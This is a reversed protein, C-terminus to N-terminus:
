QNFKALLNELATQLQMDYLQRFRNLNPTPQTNADGVLRARMLKVPDGLANSYLTVFNFTISEIITDFLRSTNASSSYRNKYAVGYYVPRVVTYSHMSLMETVASALALRSGINYPIALVTYGDQPTTAYTKQTEAYKPLPLMSYHLSPDTAFTKAARIQGFTFLARKKFFAQESYYGTDTGYYADKAVTGLFVGDTEYMLRYLAEFADTANGDTYSLRTNGEADTTSLNIGFSVLMADVCMSGSNFFLGHLDDKTDGEEGDMERWVDRIMTKLLEVTWKGDLAVQYLDTEISQERLLDENFYTVPTREPASITLDGVLYYLTNHYSTERIFSQNYWPQALSIYNEPNGDNLNYYLGESALAAGYYATAGIVDFADDSGMISNRIKVLHDTQVKGTNVTYSIEVGLRQKTAENRSVIAQDIIATSTEDASFENENPVLIRVKEGIFTLDAPIKSDPESDISGSGNPGGTVTERIQETQSASIVIGVVCGATVIVALGGSVVRLLLKKNRLILVAGAALAALIAVSCLAIGIANPTSVTKTITFDPTVAGPDTEPEGSEDAGDPQSDPSDPEPEPLAGPIFSGNQMAAVTAPILKCITLENNGNKGYVSVGDTAILAATLAPYNQAFAEKTLSVNTGEALKRIATTAATGDIQGNTLSYATGSGTYRVTLSFHNRVSHTGIAYETSGAHAVYCDELLLVSAPKMSQDGEEFDLTDAYLLSGRLRGVKHDMGISICRTMTVNGVARGIFGGAESNAKAIFGAFVCDTFVATGAYGTAGVFGGLAKYGTLTCESLCDKFSVNTGYGIAGIMGGVRGSEVTPATLTMATYVNEITCDAGEATAAIVGVPYSGDGTLTISGSEFRINRVTAGDLSGIFALARNEGTLTLGRIAHGSGEFFGRFKKPAIWETGTMDIDSTLRVIRNRYWGCAEANAAFALLDAPTSVTYIGKEDASWSSEAAMPLPAFLSTLLLIASLLIGIRVTFHKKM